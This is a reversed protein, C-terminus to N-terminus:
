RMAAELSGAASWLMSLPVDGSIVATGTGTHMLLVQSGSVTRTEVQMDGPAAPRADLWGVAVHGGLPTTYFITVVNTDNVPDMRVGTPTLSPVAVVPSLRESQRACWSAITAADSSRLAPSQHSATVAAAIPDSGRSTVLTTTGAGVAVAAVAAATGLMAVRRRRSFRPASSATGIDAPGLLASRLKESVLGHAAVENACAECHGVHERTREPVLDLEGDALTGLYPRHERCDDLM